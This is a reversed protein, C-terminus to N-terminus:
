SPGKRPGYWGVDQRGAEALAAELEVREVRDAARVRESYALAEAATWGAFEDAGYALAVQASKQGLAAWSARIRVAPPLLWRLASLLMVDTTGATTKGPLPIRDGAAAPLPVVSVLSSSEKLREALQEIAEPTVGPEYTVVATWALPDGLALWRDLDPHSEFREGLRGIRLVGRDLDHFRQDLPLDLGGSGCVEAEPGVEEGAQSAREFRQGAAGLYIWSRPGSATM